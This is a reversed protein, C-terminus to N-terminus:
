FNMGEFCMNSMDVYVKGKWSYCFVEVDIDVGFFDGVLLMKGILSILYNFVKLIIGIEVYNFCFYFEICLSVICVDLMGFLLMEGDVM